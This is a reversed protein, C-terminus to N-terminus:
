RQISAAALVTTGAAAPEAQATFQKSAKHDALWKNFADVSVVRVEIPMFGHNIGCLQSCQGFYTGERNFHTWTENLRGPVADVKVGAATISFSHIVDESTVQIRVDFGVPLYIPNDVSMLRVDDGKIDADQKINSDYNVGYDPYAYSWYWQHGTVKLTLKADPAHDEAYLLSFSPFAIGVLIIVPIITWVVELLTNHTRVSPKPNAKASFKVMIYGMLVFVVLTIVVIIITVASHLNVIREMIPSAPPLTWLGWDHPVVVNADSSAALAPTALAALGLLPAAALATLLRSFHSRNM